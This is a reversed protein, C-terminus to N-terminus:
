FPVRKKQKELLRRWGLVGKFRIMWSKLRSIYANVNQLHFIKDIVRVKDLGIIRKHAINREKAFTSYLSNGDTCLVLEESLLPKVSRICVTAVSL